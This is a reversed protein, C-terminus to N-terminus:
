SSKVEYYNGKSDVFVQRKKVTGDPEEIEMTTTPFKQNGLTLPISWDFDRLYGAM